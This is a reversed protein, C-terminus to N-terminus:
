ITAPSAYNTRGARKSKDPVPFPGDVPLTQIIYQTKGDKPGRVQPVPCEFKFTHKNDWQMSTRPHIIHPKDSKGELVATAMLRETVVVVGMEESTFALTGVRVRGSAYICPAIALEPPSAIELTSDAKVDTRSDGPRGNGAKSFGGGMCGREMKWLAPGLGPFERIKGGVYGPREDKEIYGMMKSLITSNCLTTPMTKQHKTTTAMSVDNTLITTYSAKAAQRIARNVEPRGNSCTLINQRHQASKSSPPNYDGNVVISSGNQPAAKAAQKALAWWGLGM